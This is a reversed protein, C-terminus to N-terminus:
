NHIEGNDFTRSGLKDSCAIPALDLSYPTHLFVKRVFERLIATAIKVTHPMANDYLFIVRYRKNLKKQQQITKVMTNKDLM